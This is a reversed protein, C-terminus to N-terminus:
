VAHSTAHYKSVTADITDIQYRESVKACPKVIRGMERHSTQCFRRSSARRAGAARIENQGSAAM